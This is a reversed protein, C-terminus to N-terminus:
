LFFNPRESDSAHKRCPAPCLLSRPSATSFSLHSPNSKECISSISTQESPCSGTSTCWHPPSDHKKNQIIKELRAKTLKQKSVSIYKLYCDEVLTVCKMTKLLSYPVFLWHHCKEKIEAKPLKFSHANTNPDLPWLNLGWQLWCTTTDRPLVSWGSNSRHPNGM